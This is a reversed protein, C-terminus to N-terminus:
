EDNDDDQFGIMLHEIQSKYPESVNELKNGGDNAAFMAANQWKIVLSLLELCREKLQDVTWDAYPDLMFPINNDDM